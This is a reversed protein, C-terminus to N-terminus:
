INNQEMKDDLIQKIGWPGAVGKWLLIHRTLHMQSSLSKSLQNDEICLPTYHPSFPIDHNANQRFESTQEKLKTEPKEEEAPDNEYFGKYLPWKTIQLKM